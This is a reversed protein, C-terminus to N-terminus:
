IKLYKLIKQIGSYSHLAKGTEIDIVDKEKINCLNALQKRTIKRAVRGCVIKTSINKSVLKLKYDGENNELKKINNLEEFNINSNKINKNNKKTLFIPTFDQFNVQNM